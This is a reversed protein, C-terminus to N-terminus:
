KARRVRLAGDEGRSLILGTSGVLGELARDPDTLPFSGSVRISSLDAADFRVPRSRYRNLEALVDAAPRDDAALWGTAWMGATEPDVRELRELRGSRIRVQDGPSLDACDRMAKAPCARVRSEIVTVTTADKDRRVVFATGLATATGDRTEVVFPRAPDEAVRAVVRGRFLTVRRSDGDSAVDIAADTDLTLSSGDALAITRQEGRGTEFDPSWARVSQSRSAIWGGGALIILCLTLGGLRRGARSRRALGAAITKRDIAEADQIRADLGQMRDLALGHLPHARRWAECADRDDQTAEDTALQAVWDAAEAIM